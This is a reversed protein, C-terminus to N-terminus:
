HAAPRHRPAAHLQTSNGTSCDSDFGPGAGYEESCGACERAPEGTVHAEIPDSILDIRVSPSPTAYSWRLRRRAIGAVTPRTGRARDAPARPSGAGPLWRPM